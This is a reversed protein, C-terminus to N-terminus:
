PKADHNKAANATTDRLAWQAAATPALELCDPRPAHRKRLFLALSARCGLSKQAIKKNGCNRPTRVGRVRDFVGYAVEFGGWFVAEWAGRWRLHARARDSVVAVM